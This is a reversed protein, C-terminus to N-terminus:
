RPLGPPYIPVSETDVPLGELLAKTRESLSEICIRMWRLMMPWSIVGGAIFVLIQFFGVFQWPLISYITSLAFGPVVALMAFLLSPGFMREGTLAFSYTFVNEGPVEDIALFGVFMMKASVVLLITFTLIHYWMPGVARLGIELAMLVLAIFLGLLLYTRFLRVLAGATMKFEPHDLRLTDAFFYVFAVPSALAVGLHAHKPTAAGILLDLAGGALMLGAYLPWRTRLLAQADLLSAGFAERLQALPNM